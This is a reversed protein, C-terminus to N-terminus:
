NSTKQCLFFSAIFTFKIVINQYKSSPCRRGSLSSVSSSGSANLFVSLNAEHVTIKSSWLSQAHETLTWNFLMVLQLTPILFAFITFLSTAWDHGVRQSGMSVLSRQGRYKRPLLVPTPQWKRRWSILLPSTLENVSKRSGAPDVTSRCKQDHLYFPCRYMKELWGPCTASEPM